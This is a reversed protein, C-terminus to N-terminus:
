RRSRSSHCNGVIYCNNVVYNHEESDVELDFVFDDKLYKISTIKKYTGGKACVNKGILNKIKEKKNSFEDIVFEHDLTCEVDNNVLYIPKKGNLYFNKIPKYGSSTLIKYKHIDSNRLFYICLEYLSISTPSNEGYKVNVVTNGSFCSSHCNSVIYKNNVIYRHEESDVELDYTMGECIDEISQIKTNGTITCVAKGLLNSISEKINEKLNIVFKHDPTCDLEENIKVLPKIGNKFVNLIEVFGEPSNVYMKHKKSVFKNYLDAFSIKEIKENELIEIITSGSFCSAHCYSYSLDVYRSQAAIVQAQVSNFFTTFASSFSEDGSNIGANTLSVLYSSNFLARQTQDYQVQQTGNNNYYIRYRCDVISTLSRAASRVTSSIISADLLDNTVPSSITSQPNITSPNGLYSTPFNAPHNNTSWVYSTLNQLTSQYRSRIDSSSHIDGSNM